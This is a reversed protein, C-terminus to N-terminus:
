FDMYLTASHLWSLGYFLVQLGSLGATVYIAEDFFPGNKQMLIITSQIVIFLFFLLHPIRLRLSTNHQSVQSHTNQMVPLPVYQSVQVPLTDPRPTTPIQTLLIEKPSSATGVVILRKFQM